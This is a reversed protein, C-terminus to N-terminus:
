AFRDSPFHPNLDYANKRRRYESALENTNSILSALFTSEEDDVSPTTRIIRKATTM